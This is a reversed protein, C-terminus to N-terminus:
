NQLEHSNSETEGIFFEGLVQCFGGARILKTLDEVQCRRRLFPGLQFSKKFRGHRVVLPLRSSLRPDITRAGCFWSGIARQEGLPGPISFAWTADREGLPGSICFALTADREGLPDPPGPLKELAIDGPVAGFDQRSLTKAHAQLFCFFGLQRWHARISGSDV